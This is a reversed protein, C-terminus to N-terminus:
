KDLDISRTCPLTPSTSHDFSEAPFSELNWELPRRHTSNPRVPLILRARAARPPPVPAVEAPRTGRTSQLGLRSRPRQPVQASACPFIVLESHSHQAGHGWHAVEIDAPTPTPAAPAQNARAHCDHRAPRPADDESM